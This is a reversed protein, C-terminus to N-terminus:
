YSLFYYTVGLSVVGAGNTFTLLGEKERDRTTDYKSENPAPSYSYDTVVAGTNDYTTVRGTAMKEVKRERPSVTFSMGIAFSLELGPISEFQFSGGLSLGVGLYASYTEIDTIDRITKQNMYVTPGGSNLYTYNVSSESDDYEYGSNFMVPLGVFFYSNKNKILKLKPILSLSIESDRIDTYDYANAVLYNYSGDHANSYYDYTYSDDYSPRLAFTFDLGIFDIIWLSFGIEPSGLLGIETELMTAAYPNLSNTTIGLQFTKAPPNGAATEEQAFVLSSLFLVLFVMIFNKM